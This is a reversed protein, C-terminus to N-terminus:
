ETTSPEALMEPVYYTEYNSLPLFFHILTPEYVEVM